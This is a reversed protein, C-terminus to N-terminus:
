EVTYDTDKPAHRALLELAMTLSLGSGLMDEDETDNEWRTLDWSGFMRILHFSYDTEGFFSVFVDYNGANIKQRIKDTNLM